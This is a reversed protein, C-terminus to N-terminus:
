KKLLNVFHSVHKTVDQHQHMYRSHKEGNIDAVYHEDGQNMALQKRKKDTFKERDELCEALTNVNKWRRDHRGEKKEVDTM